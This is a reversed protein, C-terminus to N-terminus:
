AAQLMWGHLTVKQGSVCQVYMSIWCFCVRGITATVCRAASNSSGSLAQQQCPNSHAGERYMMRLNRIMGVDRPSGPTATQLRTKAADIPLVTAWRCPLEASDARMWRAVLVLRQM